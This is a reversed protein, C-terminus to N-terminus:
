FSTVVSEEAVHPGPVPLECVEDEGNLSGDEQATLSGDKSDPENFGSSESSEDDSDPTHSIIFKVDDDLKLEDVDNGIEMDIVREGQANGCREMDCADHGCLTLANVTPSPLRRGPSLEEEEDDEEEAVETLVGDDEEEEEHDEHIMGLRPATNSKSIPPKFTSGTSLMKTRLPVVSNKLPLSSTRQLTLRSTQKRSKERVFEQLAFSIKDHLQVAMAKAKAESKCLVAHCRLELKM